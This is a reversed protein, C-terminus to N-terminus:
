YTITQKINKKGPILVGETVVSRDPLRYNYTNFAKSPVKDISSGKRVFGQM